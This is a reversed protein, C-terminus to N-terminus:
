ITTDAQEIIAPGLISTDPLLRERYFVKAEVGQPYESVKINRTGVQPDMNKKKDSVPVGIESSGGAQHVSRLNVIRAPAQTAYGYVRRHTEIFDEYLRKLAGESTGLEIDLTYGQGVYCVDAFYRIKLNTKDVVERDMLASCKKDLVDLRANVEELKTKTLEQGFAEAAEHEVPAALLGAAALVGPYPPIVIKKIGLERALATSHLAGGGGLPVLTFKRPDLGQQITVLRIGEAMQANIIRHVGLAAEQLDIDMK